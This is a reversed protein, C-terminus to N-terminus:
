DDKALWYIAICKKQYPHLELMSGYSMDEVYEELVAELVELQEYDSLDLMANKALIQENTM